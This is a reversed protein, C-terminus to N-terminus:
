DVQDRPRYSVYNPDFLSELYPQTNSTFGQFHGLEHFLLTPVVLVHEVTSQDTSM